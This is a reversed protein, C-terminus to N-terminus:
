RLNETRKKNRKEESIRWEAIKLLATNKVKRIFVSFIIKILTM